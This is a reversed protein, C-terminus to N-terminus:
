GRKAALRQRLEITAQSEGERAASPETPTINKSLPYPPRINQRPRQWAIQQPLDQLEKWKLRTADAGKIGNKRLKAAKAAERVMRRNFLRGARDRSAVGKDLIGAILKTVEEVSAANTVRCIEELPLPRGREDCVYGVPSGVAALALLDIWLGREAHTLRRVQQDGLWDSWFFKTSHTATM